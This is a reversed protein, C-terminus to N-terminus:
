QAVAFSEITAASFDSEAAVTKDVALANRSNRLDQQTSAMKHLFM